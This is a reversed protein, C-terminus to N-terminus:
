PSRRRPTNAAVISRRCDSRRWRVSASKSMVANPDAHIRRQDLPRISHDMSPDRIVDFGQLSAADCSRAREAAGSAWGGAAVAAVSVVRAVVAM